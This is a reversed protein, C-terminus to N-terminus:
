AVGYRGPEIRRILGDRAMAIMTNALPKEVGLHTRIQAPSLGEPYERLLAVIQQRMAGRDAGRTVFQAPSMLLAPASRPMDLLRQSQQQAQDVMTTLYAIHEQYAQERAQVAERERQATEQAHWLQQQVLEVLIDAYTQSRKDESTPMRGSRGTPAHERVTDAHQGDHREGRQQMDMDVVSLSTRSRERLSDVAQAVHLSLNPAISSATLPPVSRM